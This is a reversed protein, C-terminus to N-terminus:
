GIPPSSSGFHRAFNAISAALRDPATLPVNHASEIWEVQRAESRKRLRDLMRGQLARMQEERDEETLSWRAVVFLIPTELREYLESVGDWLPDLLQSSLRTWDTVDPKREYRGPAVERVQRRLVPEVDDFSEILKRVSGSTRGLELEHLWKEWGRLQEAIWGDVDNADGTFRWESELWEEHARREVARDIGLEAAYEMPDALSGDVNVVGVVGATDECAHAISVVAGVSHGVLLTPGMGLEDRVKEVDGAQAAISYDSPADTLGHGRLDFAVVRFTRALRPGLKNWVCVNHTLGHVLLVSLGQGGFDRVAIRSDDRRVFRDM